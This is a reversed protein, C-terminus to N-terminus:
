GVFRPVIAGSRKVVETAVRVASVLLLDCAMATGNPFHGSLPGIARFGRRLPRERPSKKWAGDSKESRFFVIRVRRAETRGPPACTHSISATGCRCQIVPRVTWVDGAVHAAHLSQHAAAASEQRGGREAHGSQSGQGVVRDRAHGRGSAADGISRGLIDGFVFREPTFNLKPERDIPADGIQVVAADAGARADDVFGELAVQVDRVLRGNIVHPLHELRVLFGDAAAEGGVDADVGLFQRQRAVGALRQLDRLEADIERRAVFHQRRRLVIPPHEVRPFLPDRAVLDHQLLDLERHRRRAQRIERRANFFPDSRLRFHNMEAVDGIQRPLNKWYAVDASHRTRPSDRRDDVARM